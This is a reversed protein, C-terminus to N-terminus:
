RGRACIWRRAARLRVGADGARGRDGRWAPARPPGPARLGSISRAVGYRPVPLVARGRLPAAGPLAAPGAAGRPYRPGGSAKWAAPPSAATQPRVYRPGTPRRPEIRAATARASLRRRPKRVRAPRASHSATSRPATASGAAAPCPIARRAGRSGPGRGDTRAVPGRATPAVPRMAQTGPSRVRAAVPQRSPRARGPRVRSANATARIVLGFVHVFRPSPQIRAVARLPKTSRVNLVSVQSCYPKQSGVTHPPGACRRRHRPSEAVAVIGARAQRGNGSGSTM